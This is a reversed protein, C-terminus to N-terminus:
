TNEKKQILLLIFFRFQERIPHGEDDRRCGTFWSSAYLGIIEPEPNEEGVTEM